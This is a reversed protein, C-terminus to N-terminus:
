PDPSSDRQLDGTMVLLEAEMAGEDVAPCEDLESRGNRDRGLPSDGRWSASRGSAGWGLRAGCSGALTATWTARPAVAPAGIAAVTAPM